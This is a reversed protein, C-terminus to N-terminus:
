AKSGSCFDMEISREEPDTRLVGDHVEVIRRVISLGLGAGNTSANEARCFRDSLRDLMATDLGPGGDVVRLRPGPGCVVVVEDGPPTVRVANELLNRVAATIAEPRGAVPLRGEDRYALRVKSRTADVAALKIAEMASERLDVPRFPQPAAAYADLQALVLLQEILRNMASLDAIVPATGPTDLREIQLMVVALPTKLEHAIDAAFGEQREAADDLKALLANIAEAFPLAEDPLDDVDVRFGRERGTAQHIREAAEHLPDLARRILWTTAAVLPVLLVIIPFIVHDVVEHAIGIHGFDRRIDERALEFDVILFLALVISGIAAMWAFGVRLDALISRRSAKM